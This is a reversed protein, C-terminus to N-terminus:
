LRLRPHIPIHPDLSVAIGVKSSGVKGFGASTLGWFVILEPDNYDSTAEAKALEARLTVAMVTNNSANDTTICM